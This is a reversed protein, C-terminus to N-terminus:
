YEDGEEIFVTPANKQVALLICKGAEQTFLHQWHTTHQFQKYVTPSGLLLKGGGGLPSM